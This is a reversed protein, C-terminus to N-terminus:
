RKFTAHCFRMSSLKYVTQLTRIFKINRPVTKICCFIARPFALCQMYSLEDYSTTINATFFKFMNRTSTIFSFITRSYTVVFGSFSSACSKIFAFIAFFFKFIARRFVSYITRLCTYIFRLFFNKCRFIRSNSFHHQSSIHNFFTLFTSVIRVWINQSYMMFITIPFVITKCIKQNQTWHTM